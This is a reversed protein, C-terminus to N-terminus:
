TGTVIRDRLQQNLNLSEMQHIIPGDVDSESIKEALVRRSTAMAQYVKKIAAVMDLDGSEHFFDTLSETVARIIAAIDAGRAKDALDDQQEDTKLGLFECAVPWYADSSSLFSTFGSVDKALLDVGHVTRIRRLLGFTAVVEFSQGAVTLKPM